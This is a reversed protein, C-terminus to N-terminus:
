QVEPFETVCISIFACILSSSASTSIRSDLVLTTGVCLFFISLKLKIDVLLIQPDETM